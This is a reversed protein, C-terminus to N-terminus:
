LGHGTDILGMQTLKKFIEEAIIMHGYETPHTVDYALPLDKNARFAKELDLYYVEPNERVIRMIEQKTLPENQLELFHFPLVLLIKIKKERCLKLTEDFYSRPKDPLPEQGIYYLRNFVEKRANELGMFLYSNCLFNYLYVIQKNLLM